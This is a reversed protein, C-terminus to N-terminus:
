VVLSKVLNTVAVRKEVNLKKFNKYLELFMRDNSFDSTITGEYFNIIQVNLTKAIMYLRCASVKNTGKEYKAVQQHTIHIKKGLQEMTIGNRVRANRIRTGIENNIKTTEENKRSM